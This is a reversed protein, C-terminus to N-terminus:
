IGSVELDVWTGDIGVGVSGVVSLISENVVSVGIASRSGVSRGM